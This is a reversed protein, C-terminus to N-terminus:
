AAIRQLVLLLTVGGTINYDSIKHGNKLQTTGFILCQQSPPIGEKAQIQGKVNEITDDDEICLTLTNGRMTKVFIQMGYAVCYEQEDNAM